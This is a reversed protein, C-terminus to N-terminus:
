ELLKRLERKTRVKEFRSLWDKSTIRDFLEENIIVSREIDNKSYSTMFIYKVKKNEWMVSKELKAVVLFTEVTCFSLPHPVAVLHGIETTSVREREKVLKKFKTDLGKHLIVQDCLFDLVEEKNGLPLDLYIFYEPLLKNLISEEVGIPEIDLLVTDLANKLYIVKVEGTIELPFTTVIYNVMSYDFYEFEERDLVIINDVPVQFQQQIKYTLFRIIGLNKETVLAVMCEPKKLSRREIALAYHLAIYGLENESIKRDLNKNIESVVIAALDVARPFQQKINNLLPNPFSFGYKARTMMPQFHIALADRLEVDKSFDYGLEQKIRENVNNILNSIDNEPVLDRAGTTRKGQLHISIYSVEEEPFRISFVKEIEKAIITALVYTDSTRNECVIEKGIFCFERVRHIVILLHIILNRYVNDSLDYSYENISRYLIEEMKYYDQLSQENLQLIPLVEDFGVCIQAYCLRKDLEKGGLKLGYGPKSLLTLCYDDLFIKVKKIIRNMTSRSVWLKDCLEDIKLWDSSTILLHLVYRIRYDMSQLTSSSDAAESLFNQISEKDGILRYGKKRDSIIYLHYSALWDRSERIDTRLTRTSTSLITALESGNLSDPAEALQNVLKVIRDRLM